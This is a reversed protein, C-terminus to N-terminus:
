ELCWVEFGGPIRAIGPTKSKGELDCFGEITPLDMGCVIEHRCYYNEQFIIIQVMTTMHHEGAGVFFLACIQVALGFLQGNAAM